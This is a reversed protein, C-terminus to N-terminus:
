LQTYRFLPLLVCLDQIQSLLRVEHQLSELVYQAASSRVSVSILVMTVSLLTLKSPKNTLLTFIYLVHMHWDLQNVFKKVHILM